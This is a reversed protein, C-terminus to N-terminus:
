TKLPPMNLNKRIVTNNGNYLSSGTDLSANVLKDLPNRGLNKSGYKSSVSESLHQGKIYSNGSIPNIQTRASQVRDSYLASDVPSIQTNLNKYPNFQAPNVNELAPNIQSLPMMSGSIKGVDSVGFLKALAIAGGAAVVKNIYNQNVDPSPAITKPQSAPLNPLQDSSIYELRLGENYAQNLNVDDPVNKYNTIDNTIKSQFNSGLGSVKSTDLGIRSGYASPDSRTGLLSAISDAVTNLINGSKQESLNNISEVRLRSLNQPLGNIYSLSNKDM